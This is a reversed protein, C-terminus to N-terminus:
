TVAEWQTFTIMYPTPIGKPSQPWKLDSMYMILRMILNIRKKTGKAAIYFWM